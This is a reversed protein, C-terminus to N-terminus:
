ACYLHGNKAKPVKEYKLSSQEQSKLLIAPNIKSDGTLKASAIDNFIKLNTNAKQKYRQM